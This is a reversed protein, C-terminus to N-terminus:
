RKDAKEGVAEALEWFSGAVGPSRRGAGTGPGPGTGIGTGADSSDKNKGESDSWASGTTGVDDFTGPPYLSQVWRRSTEEWQESLAQAIPERQSYLLVLAVAIVPAALLDTGPDHMGVATSKAVEATTAPRLGSATSRVAQLDFTSSDFIQSAAEVIARQSTQIASASQEPLNDAQLEAELNSLPPWQLQAADQAAARISELKDIPAQAGESIGMALHVRAPRLANDSFCPASHVLM